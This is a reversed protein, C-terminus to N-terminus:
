LKRLMQGVLQQWEFAGRQRWGARRDCRHRREIMLALREFVQKRELISGVRDLSGEIQLVGASSRAGLGLLKDVRNTTCRYQRMISGCSSNCCGDSVQSRKNVAIIWWV